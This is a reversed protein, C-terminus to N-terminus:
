GGAIAPVLSISDGVKVTTNEQELYRIDQNNLFVNIYRRIEGDGAFLQQKLQPHKEIIQDLAGTIDIADVEVTANNESYQRLATPINVTTQM